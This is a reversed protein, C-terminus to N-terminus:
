YVLRYIGRSWAVAVIGAESYKRRKSFDVWIYTRIKHFVIHSYFAGRLFIFDSNSFKAMTTQVTRCNIEFIPPNDHM